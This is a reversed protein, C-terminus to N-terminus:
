FGHDTQLDAPISLPTEIHQRYMDIMYLNGDPGVTFSAPRVWSDTSAMFEKDKEAAARSAIM